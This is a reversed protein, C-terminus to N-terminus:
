AQKPRDLVVNGLRWLYTKSVRDLEVGYMGVAIRAAEARWDNFLM